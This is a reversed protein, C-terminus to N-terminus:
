TAPAERRRQPTRGPEEEDEDGSHIFLNDMAMYRRMAEEFHQAIARRADGPTGRDKLAALIRAHEAAAATYAAGHHLPKLSFLLLKNLFTRIIPVAEPFGAATAIAAHFRHDVQLFDYAEERGISQKRALEKAMRQFTDNLATLEAFDASGRILVLREALYAEIAFRLGMANRMDALTVNQLRAGVKKVPELLGEKVLAAIVRRATPRPFRLREILWNESLKEGMGLQTVIEKRADEVAQGFPVPKPSKPQTV